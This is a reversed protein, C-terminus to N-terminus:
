DDIAQYAAVRFDGSAPFAGGPQFQMMFVGIFREVPDVWYDTGAAGGWGHEGVSGLMWSRAPNTSVRVGLGYGMGPDIWDPGLQEPTLHNSTMLEVTKRSLVRAGDLTGGNLLMQAFRFYDSATSVLGHGGRHVEHFSSELGDRPGRLLRARPQEGGALKTSTMDSDLVDAYGYEATFRDLNDEPVYFGTDRMDLPDFIATQLYDGFRQGSAVEVVRAIVDHAVSYRRESGPQFALPMSAIRDVFTPLPVPDFARSSRYMREVLGHESFHYTLGATHTMLHWITVPHALAVLTPEDVTEDEVVQLEAFTPIFASVSDTLRVTGQELLTLLAVMTVPKTMSYLRFIADTTMPRGAERDAYGHARLHAIQGHRAVLTVAGAVKEPGLHRGVAGDIRSLREVSLGVDEARVM